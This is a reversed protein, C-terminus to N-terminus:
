EIDLFEKSEDEEDLFSENSLISEFEKVIKIADKVKKIDSKTELINEPKIYVL